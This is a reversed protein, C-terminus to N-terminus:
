PQEPPPAGIRGGVDPDRPEHRMVNQDTRGIYLWGLLKEPDSVGLMARVTSLDVGPGTRWMATWGAEFLLLQLTTIMAVTAGLQEWEPVKPHPHPTAVVAILLPARLAKAATKAAAPSGPDDGFGAVLANGLRQRDEGRVAILRWPRLSAHDPAHAALGLLATLEEDDPAEDTIPATSNRYRVADKLEM